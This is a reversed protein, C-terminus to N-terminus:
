ATGGSRASVAAHQFTGDPQELWTRSRNVEVKARVARTLDGATWANQGAVGVLAIFVDAWEDLSPDAALEAGEASVKRHANVMLDVGHLDRTDLFWNSAAYFADNLDTAYLAGYTAAESPGSADLEPV